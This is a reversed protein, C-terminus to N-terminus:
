QKIVGDRTIELGNIIVSGNNKLYIYGGAMSCIKIEGKQLGASSNLVGIGIQEADNSALLLDSGVPLSFCYGYPSYVPIDRGIGTSVAEVVGNNNSTSKGTQIVSQSTPKVMQESIWM